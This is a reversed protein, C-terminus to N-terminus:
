LLYQGYHLAANTFLHGRLTVVSWDSDLMESLWAIIVISFYCTDTFGLPSWPSLILVLATIVSWVFLSCWAQFPCLKVARRSGQLPVSRWPVADVRVVLPLHASRGAQVPSLVLVRVEAGQPALSVPRVTDRSFVQGPSSVGSSRQKLSSPFFM